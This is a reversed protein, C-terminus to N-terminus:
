ASRAIIDAKRKASGHVPFGIIYDRNARACLGCTACTVGDRQTAPCAVIRQDDIKTVKPSGSPLVTVVPLGTKILAAAQSPNNASVNVTFGGANAERIATINTPTLPKHTYTFGRKGENAKVIQRLQRRNIRNGTGPLDGAQNHRWLQNEPLAKIQDAFADLATGREGDSVKNWHM